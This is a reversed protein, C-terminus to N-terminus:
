AIVDEPAANTHLAASLLPDNDDDIQIEDWASQDGGYYVDTLSSCGRFTYVGVSVTSYPLFIAELSECNEFVDFGIEVTGKSIVVRRLEACNQFVYNSLETMGPVVVEELGCSSFAWFEIEELSEPLDISKLATCGSFASICIRRVGEPMQVRELNVCDEFAFESISSVPKEIVVERIQDMYPFWEVEDHNEIYPMSEGTFVFLGNDYLTWDAGSALVEADEPVTYQVTEQQKSATQGVGCGSLLLTTILLALLLKRIAPKM